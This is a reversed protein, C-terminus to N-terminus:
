TDLKFDSAAHSAFALVFILLFIGAILLTVINYIADTNHNPIKM